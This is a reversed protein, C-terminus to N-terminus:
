TVAFSANRSHFKTIYCNQEKIVNAKFEDYTDVSFTQQMKSRLERMEEERFSFKKFGNNRLPKAKEVSGIGFCRAESICHFRRDAAMKERDCRSVIQTVQEDSLSRGIYTAIRRATNALDEVIDEYFLVFTAPFPPADHIWSKAHSFWSRSPARLYSRRPQVEKKKMESTVDRSNDNRPLPLCLLGHRLYAHFVEERVVENSVSSDSLDDFLFDLWSSPYDVPNRIVVIHKQTTCGAALFVTYPSHSKFLRPSSECPSTSMQPLYDVWPAVDNLDQFDTGNPDCKPAGGTAVVVQYALYQILTTGAKPFTTVVIDTPRAEYTILGTPNPWKRIKEFVQHLAALAQRVAPERESQNEEQMNNGEESDIM